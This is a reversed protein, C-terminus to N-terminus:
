IKIKDLKGCGDDQIVLNRSEFWERISNCIVKVNQTGWFALYKIDEDTSTDTLYEKIYKKNSVMTRLKDIPQSQLDTWKNRTIVDLSGLSPIPIKFKRIIMDLLEDRKWNNCRKGSTRKHKKDPINQSVDRICFERDIKFTETNYKFVNQVNDPLVGFVNRNVFKNTIIIDQQRTEREEDRLPEGLFYHRYISGQRKTHDKTYCCPLYDVIDKNSLPNDRLAPYKADRYECVYNRPIVGNTVVKPYTMVQKGQARYEEVEDDEIISPQHTCKPPYGPVFVEPAIDKLKLRRNNGTRMTLRKIFNPIFRTYYTKVTEFKDNYIMLLKMFIEQFDKIVRTNNASTIKIRIYHTGYKFENTTDKNLLDSDGREAIKPIINATILGINPHNFYIYIGSKKKSIKDSEDVHIMNSFLMDNTILDLIVEKSLEFKPVYFVGNVKTETYDTLTYTFIDRLRDQLTLIDIIDRKFEMETLIKISDDEITVVVNLYDTDELKREPTIKYKNVKILIINEFTTVWTPLPTVDRYIKYKKDVSAFPIDKTLKIDNFVDIISIDRSNLKFELVSKELEFDTFNLNSQTNEFTNIIDTYEDSLTKNGRISDTLKKDLERRNEWIELVNPIDDGFVGLGELETQFQLLLFEVMSNDVGLFTQNKIIYPVLIDDILQLNTQDLKDKVGNYVDEFNDTEMIIDFLNIFSTNPNINERPPIGNLYYIFKPLTNLKSAIRRTISEVTDLSYIDIGLNNIRNM